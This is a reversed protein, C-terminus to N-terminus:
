CHLGTLVQLDSRDLSASGGPRSRGPNRALDLQLGGLVQVLGLLVGTRVQPVVERLRAPVQEGGSFAAGLVPGGGGFQEERYRLEAGEVAFERVVQVSAQLVVEM